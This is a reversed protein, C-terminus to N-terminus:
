LEFEEKSNFFRSDNHVNIHEPYDECKILHKCINRCYKIKDIDSKMDAVGDTEFYDVMNSFKIYLLQYLYAYDYDKDKKLIYWSLRIKRSLSHFSCCINKFPNKM